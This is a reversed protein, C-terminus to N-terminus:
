QMCKIQQQGAQLNDTHEFHHGNLVSRSMVSWEYFVM